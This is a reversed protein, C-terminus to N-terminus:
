WLLYKFHHAQAALLYGTFPESSNIPTVRLFLPSGLSVHFAALRNQSSCDSMALTLALFSDDLEL